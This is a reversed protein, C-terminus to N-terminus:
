SEDVNPVRFGIHNVVSGESGGTPPDAPQRLGLVILVGPFKMDVYPGVKLPTGGVAIWFNKEAEVDRVNLHVHGMAVGAENPAALQAEAPALIALGVLPVLLLKM